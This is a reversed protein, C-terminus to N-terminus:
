FLTCGLTSDRHQVMEPLVEALEELKGLIVTAEILESISDAGVAIMEVSMVRKDGDLCAFEDRHAPV